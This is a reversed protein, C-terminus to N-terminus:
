IYPSTNDGGSPAMSTVMAVVDTGEGWLASSGARIEGMRLPTWVWAPPWDMWVCWCKIKLILWRTLPITCNSRYTNKPWKWPCVWVQLSHQAQVCKGGLTWVEMSSYSGKTQNFEKYKRRLNQRTWGRQLRVCNQAGFGGDLGSRHTNGGERDGLGRRCSLGEDQLTQVGHFLALGTLEKM